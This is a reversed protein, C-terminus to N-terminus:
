APATLLRNLEAIIAEQRDEDDTREAALRQFIIQM